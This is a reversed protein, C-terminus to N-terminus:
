IVYWFKNIRMIEYIKNIKNLGRLKILNESYFFVVKRVMVTYFLKFM